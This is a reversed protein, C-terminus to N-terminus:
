NLAKVCMQDFYLSIGTNMAKLNAVAVSSMVLIVIRKIFTNKQAHINTQILFFSLVTHQSSQLVFRSGRSLHSENKDVPHRAATVRYLFPCLVVCNWLYTEVLIATLYLNRMKLINANASWKALLM